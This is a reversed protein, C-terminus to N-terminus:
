LSAFIDQIYFVIRGIQVHMSWSHLIYFSNEM